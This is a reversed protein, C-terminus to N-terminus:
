LVEVLRCSQWLTCLSCVWLTFQTLKAWTVAFVDKNIYFLFVDSHRLEWNPRASIICYIWHRQNRHFGLFSLRVVLNQFM